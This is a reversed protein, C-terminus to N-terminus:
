LLTPFDVKNHSAEVCRALTSKTTVSKGDRQPQPRAQAPCAEGYEEEVDLFGGPQM